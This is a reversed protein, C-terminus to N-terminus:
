SVPGSLPSDHATDALPSDLTADHALKGVVSTRRSAPRGRKVQEARKLVSPVTDGSFAADLDGRMEAVTQYREAPDKAMAIAVVAVVAAPVDPRLESLPLPEEDCIRRLLAPVNGGKFPREGTLCMYTIGGLAFIDTRTDVDEVVATAQEPSMFDPTGILAIEQTIATANGHIKSVGFDLIKVRTRGNEESLFLNAPKLDRHVIGAESAVELGTAAQSVLDATEPIALAGARDIRTRLDEGELLELVLFPIEGDRDVDIVEVIHPSGLKGTIEAERRFRRLLTEDDVLHPHLIKIAVVRHTRKHTGRYVEGMGGTGLMVGVEYTDRLTIGTHRGVQGEGTAALTQRLIRVAMEKHRLRAVTWNAVLFTIVLMFSIMLAAAILRQPFVAINNADVYLPKHSLWGLLEACIIAWHGVLMLAFGLAGVWFDYAMRYILVTLVGFLMMHSGISGFAWIAILVAAMEFCLSAITLRRLTSTPLPKRWMMYAFVLDVLGLASIPILIQWYLTRDYGLSDISMGGFLNTILLFSVAVLRVKGTWQYFEVPITEPVRPILRFRKTQLAYRDSNSM